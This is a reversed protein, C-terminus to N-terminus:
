IELTGSLKDQKFFSYIIFKNLPISLLFRMDFFLIVTVSLLEANRYIQKGM